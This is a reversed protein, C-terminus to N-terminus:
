FLSTCAQLLQGVFVAVITDAIGLICWDIEMDFYLEIISPEGEPLLFAMIAFM